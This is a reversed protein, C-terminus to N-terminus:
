STNLIHGCGRKRTFHPPPQLRSALTKWSDCPIKQTSTEFINKTRFQFMKWSNCIIKKHQMSLTQNSYFLVGITDYVTRLTKHYYFRWARLGKFKIRYECRSYITFKALARLASLRVTQSHSVSSNGVNQSLKVLVWLPNLCNIKEPTKACGQTLLQNPCRQYRKQNEQCM